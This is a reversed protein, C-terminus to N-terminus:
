SQKGEELWAIHDLLKHIDEDLKLQWENYRKANECSRTFREEIAKLQEPELKHPNTM